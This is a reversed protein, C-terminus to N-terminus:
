DEWGYEACVKKSTVKLCYNQENWKVCVETDDWGICVRKKGQANVDGEGGRQYYVEGDKEKRVAVVNGERDLIQEEDKSLFLEVDNM